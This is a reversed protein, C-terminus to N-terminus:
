TVKICRSARLCLVKTLSSVKNTRQSTVVRKSMPLRRLSPKWGRLVSAPTYCERMQKKQNKKNKKFLRKSFFLAKGEKGQEWYYYKTLFVFLCFFATLLVWWNFTTISPWTGSKETVHEQFLREGVKSSRRTENEFHKKSITIWRFHRHYIAAPVQGNTYRKRTREHAKGGSHETTLLM